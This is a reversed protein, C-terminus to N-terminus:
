GLRRHGKIAVVHLFGFINRKKRKEAKEAKKCKLPRVQQTKRELKERMNLCWQVVMRTMERGLRNRVVHKERKGIM